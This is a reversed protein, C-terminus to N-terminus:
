GGGPRAPHVTRPVTGPRRRRLRGTPAGSPGPRLPHRSRVGGSRRARCGLATRQLQAAVLDGAVREVTEPEIRAAVRGYLRSTEVLDAVMLWRPPRKTLVSGPALVFRVNRAGTYERTDGERLGVHSLLGAVLAAHVRAPDAPERDGPSGSVSTAPSAACNGPSTRGSGSACITCTSRAACGAFLVAPCHKVSRSCTGGCTSTLSSIASHEDAFRAHKARAAEEADAPRERPDPISLAAALM